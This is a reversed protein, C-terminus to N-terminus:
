NESFLPQDPISILAIRTLTLDAMERITRWAEDNRIYEEKNDATQPMANIFQRLHFDFDVLVSLMVESIGITQLGRGGQFLIGWRDLLEDPVFVAPSEGQVVLQRTLDSIQSLTDLILGWRKLETMTDM